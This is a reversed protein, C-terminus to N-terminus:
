PVHGSYGEVALEKPLVDFRVTISERCSSNYLTDEPRFILFSIAMNSAVERSENTSQLRLFQLLRGVEPAFGEPHIAEARLLLEVRTEIRRASIQVDLNLVSARFRADASRLTQTM